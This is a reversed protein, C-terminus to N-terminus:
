TRLSRVGCPAGTVAVVTGWTTHIQSEMMELIKSKQIKPNRNKFKRNKQGRVTEGGPIDRRPSLPLPLPLRRPPAGPLM